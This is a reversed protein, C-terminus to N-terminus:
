LIRLVGNHQKAFKRAFEVSVFRYSRGGIYVVARWHAKCAM